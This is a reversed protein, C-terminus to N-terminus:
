LVEKGMLADLKERTREKECVQLSGPNLKMPAQLGWCKQPSVGPAFDKNLHMSVEATKLSVNEINLM